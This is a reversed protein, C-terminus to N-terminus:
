VRYIISLPQHASAWWGRGKNGQRFSGCTLWTPAIRSNPSKHRADNGDDSPQPALWAVALCCCAPPNPFLTRAVLYCPSPSTRPASSTMLMPTDGGLVSVSGFYVGPPVLASVVADFFAVLGTSSGPILVPPLAFFASDDFTISGPAGSAFSFSLGNLFTNPPGCNSLTGFFTVSGGAAVPHNDDLTFSIPDAKVAAPLIVLVALVSMAILLQKFKTKM